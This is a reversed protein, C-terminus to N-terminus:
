YVNPKPFHKPAEEQDLWQNDCVIWKENCTVVRDLFSERNNCLIHSSSVEFHDNKQNESLEHAMWTDLKKVKGTQKLHWVVISHDVNLEKAAEQITTLPDAKIIAKLPHSDVEAPWGSHEEDELSEDWKCFKKFWWQVTQENATRPGFAKTINRITEAAKNGM